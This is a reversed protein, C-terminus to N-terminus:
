CSSGEGGRSGQNVQIVGLRLGGGLFGWSYSDQTLFQGLAMPVWSLLALFM